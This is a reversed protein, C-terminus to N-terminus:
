IQDLTIVNPFKAAMKQDSTLVPCEEREGLAILLCDYVGHRTNSSLETARSLLPLSPYMVPLTNSIQELLELAEPPKLIGKRESRTLAHAVEVLFTDPAILEHIQNNFDALLAIAMESDIEPLLFKIGICSDLVFKM